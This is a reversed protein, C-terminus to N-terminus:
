PACHETGLRFCFHLPKPDRSNGDVIEVPPLKAIRVQVISDRLCLHHLGLLAHVLELEASLGFLLTLIAARAPSAFFFALLRRWALHRFTALSAASALIECPRRCGWREVAYSSTPYSALQKRLFREM